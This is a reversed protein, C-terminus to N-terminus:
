WATKAVLFVFKFVNFDFIMPSLTFTYPCYFINLYFGKIFKMSTKISNLPQYCCTNKDNLMLPLIENNGEGGYNHDKYVNEKTALMIKM